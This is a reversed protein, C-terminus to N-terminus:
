AAIGTSIISKVFPSASVTGNEFDNKSYTVTSIVMDNRFGTEWAINMIIKDITEDIRDLVICVDLDSYESANDYVRSGFARIAAGPFIKRVEVAFEHLIKLDREKMIFKNYPSCTSNDICNMLILCCQVFGKEYGYGQGRSEFYLWM